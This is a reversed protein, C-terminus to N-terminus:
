VIISSRCSYVIHFYFLCYFERTIRSNEEIVTVMSEDASSIPEVSTVSATLKSMDGDRTVKTPDVTTTEECRFNGVVRVGFFPGPSSSTPSHLKEDLHTLEERVVTAIESKMEETRVELTRTVERCEDAVQDIIKKYNRPEEASSKEHPQDPLRESSSYHKEFRM